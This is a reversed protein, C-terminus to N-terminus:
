SLFSQSPNPLLAAAFVPLDCAPILTPHQTYITFVIKIREEREHCRLADHDHRPLFFRTFILPPYLTCDRIIEPSSRSEKM